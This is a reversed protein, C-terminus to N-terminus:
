LVTATGTFFPVETIINQNSSTPELLTKVDNPAMGNEKLSEVWTSWFGTQAATLQILVNLDSILTDEKTSAAATRRAAAAIATLWACTRLELRRDVAGSDSVTMNMHRNLAVIELTIKTKLTAHTTLTPAVRLDYYEGEGTVTNETNEGVRRIQVQLNKVITEGSMIKRKVREKQDTDPVGAAGPLFEAYVYQRRGEMSSFKYAMLQLQYGFFAFTNDVDPWDVAAQTTVTNAQNTLPNIVLPPITAGLSRLFDLNPKHGKSSNCSNCALLFNAWPIGEQPFFSKPLKHEVHANYSLPSECYSCYAGIAAILSSRANPYISAIVTGNYLKDAWVTDIWASLDEAAGLANAYNTGNIGGALLGNAVTIAAAIGNSHVAMPKKKGVQAVYGKIALKLQDFLNDCFLINDLLQYGTASNPTGTSGTFFTNPGNLVVGKTFTQFPQPANTALLATINYNAPNGKTVQRM